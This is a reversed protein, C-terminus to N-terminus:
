VLIMWVSWLLNVCGQIVFFVLLIALHGCVKWWFSQIWTRVFFVEWMVCEVCYNKPYRWLQLLVGRSLSLKWLCRMDWFLISPTWVTSTLRGRIDSIILNSYLICPKTTNIDLFFAKAVCTSFCIAQRFNQHYGCTKDLKWFQYEFKTQLPFLMWM